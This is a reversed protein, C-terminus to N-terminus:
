KKSCIKCDQMHTAALYVGSVGVLIYILNPLEAVAGFVMTVLNFGFPVLGWNIAGVIVLVFAVMHLAKMYKKEGGKLDLIYKLTSM